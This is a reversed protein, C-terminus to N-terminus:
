NSRVESSFVTEKLVKRVAFYFDSEYSTRFDEPILGELLWERPVSAEEM